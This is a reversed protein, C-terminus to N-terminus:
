NRLFARFHSGRLDFKGFENTVMLLSGPRPQKIKVILMHNKNDEILLSHSVSLLIVPSVDVCHTRCLNCSTLDLRMFCSEMRFVSTFRLDM